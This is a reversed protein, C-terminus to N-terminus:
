WHFQPAFYMQLTLGTNNLDTQVSQFTDGHWFGLSAGAYISMSSSVQHQIGGNIRAGFATSEIGNIYNPLYLGEIGIFPSLAYSFTHSIGLNYSLLNSWVTYTANASTFDPFTFQTINAGVGFTIHQQSNIRYQGELQLSFFNLYQFRTFGTPIRLAFSSTELTHTSEKGSRPNREATTDLSFYPPTGTKTLIQNKNRGIIETIQDTSGMNRIVRQVFSNVEKATVVDDKNEDAWGQLAGLVLYGFAPRHLGPLPQVRDQSRAAIFLLANHKDWKRKPPLVSPTYPPHYYQSDLIALVNSSGKELISLVESVKVRRDRIRLEDIETDSGLLVPEEQFGLHDYGMFLFWITTDGHKKARSAVEKASSLINERIAAQNQLHIINKQPIGMSRAFWQKWDLANDDVGEIDPLSEYDDISVIFVLDQMHRGPLANRQKKSLDPWPTAFLSFFLLIVM